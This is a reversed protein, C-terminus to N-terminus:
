AGAASRDAVGAILARMTERAEALEGRYRPRIELILIGEYDPLQGLADALPISGWGPPLHLDGEGYPNRQGLDDYADDLRGFNDNAHIHRLHPAAQRVAELYDIGLQNTALYLHALDLCIGLSPHGVAEVQEVIKPILM